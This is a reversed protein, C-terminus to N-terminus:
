THPVENNGGKVCDLFEKAKLYSYYCIGGNSMTIKRGRYDIDSIKKVNVIYSNHCRCFGEGLKQIIADMRMNLMYIGNEHYISVRKKGKVTEIYIIGEIDVSLLTFRDQYVFCRDIFVDRLASEVTIKIEEEFCPSRKLIINYANVKYFSHFLVKDPYDTIFVILNKIKSEMVRRAANLGASKKGIVIDLFFLAPSNMKEIYSEIEEPSGTNVIIEVTKFSSTILSELNHAFKPDDELIIIDM